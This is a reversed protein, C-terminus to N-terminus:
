KTTENQEGKEKAAEPRTETSAQEITEVNEEQIREPHDESALASKGKFSLRSEEELTVLYSPSTIEKDGIVIHRHTIFQRAQEMSRSLGKRFVLSQLRRELLDTLELGLIQHLESGAPLLGLNCLKSIVQEKEKDSQVTKLATLKKAINKYKKLFSTAILIEKSKNIGFEKKIKKSSEIESKNWPHMPTSYRKKPKKPDGM